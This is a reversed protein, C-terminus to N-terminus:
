RYQGLKSKSQPKLNNVYVDLARKAELPDGYGSYLIELAEQYVDDDCTGILHSIKDYTKDGLLKYLVSFKELPPVDFRGIHIWFLNM